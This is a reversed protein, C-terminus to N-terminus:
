WRGEPGQGFRVHGAMGGAGHCMPVGGWLPSVLNMIGQSIAIKKESVPRDPFLRNNEATIAIVANGLTLPIQPITFLLTGTLIDQWAVRGVQFEPLRLGPHIGALEKLLGPNMVVASVVGILLLVFMAPVKPNTLLLYTAVLALGALVPTTRMRNVGDVMFIMGLGLMIGRIVPKPRSVPLRGSPVPLGRGRALLPRDHPRFRVARRPKHRGCGGGSRHGEHAPHPHSDQLLARRGGPLRGFMLLLGLPDIKLITIYAVVFPILTGVDGLAGAWEMRNYLNKARATTNEVRAASNGAIEGAQGDSM